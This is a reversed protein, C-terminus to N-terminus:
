NEKWRWMVAINCCFCLCCTCSWNLWLQVRVVLAELVV